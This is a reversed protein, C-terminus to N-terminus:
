EYVGKDCYIFLAFTISIYHKPSCIGSCVSWENREFNVLWEPPFQGGIGVGVFTLWNLLRDSASPQDSSPHRFGPSRCIAFGLFEDKLEDSPEWNFTLLVISPSPYAKAKVRAM